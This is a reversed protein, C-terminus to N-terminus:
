KENTEGVSVIKGNFSKKILHIQLPLEENSKKLEEIEEPFYVVGDSCYIRNSKDSVAIEQKLTESYIYTFGPKHLAM